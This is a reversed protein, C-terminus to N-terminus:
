SQALVRTNGEGKLSRVAGRQGAALGVGRGLVMPAESLDRSIGTRLTTSGLSVDLHSRCLKPWTLSLTM